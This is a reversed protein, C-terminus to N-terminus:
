PMFQRRESSRQSRPNSGWDLCQHRYQTRKSQRTNNQTYASAKRHASGGDLSDHRNHISDLFQFLPRPGIFAQLTMTVICRSQHTQSTVSSHQLTLWKFATTENGWHNRYINTVAIEKKVVLWGTIGVLKIDRHSAWLMYCYCIATDYSLGERFTGREKQLAYRCLMHQTEGNVWFEPM